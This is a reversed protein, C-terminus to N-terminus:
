VQWHFHVLKALVALLLTVVMQQLFNVHFQADWQESKVVRRAVPTANECGGGWGWVFLVLSYWGSLLGTFVPLGPSV